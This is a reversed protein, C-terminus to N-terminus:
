NAPSVIPPATLDSGTPEALDAPAPTVPATAVVNGPYASTSGTNVPQSDLHNLCDSMMGDREHRVVNTNTNAMLISSGSYPSSVPDPQSLIDQNQRVVVRDVQERCANYQAQESRTEQPAQACSVLLAPVALGLLMRALPRFPRPSQSM